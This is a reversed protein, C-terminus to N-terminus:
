SKKKLTTLYEVVDVLDQSTLNKQLDSPMLSTKQKKLADIEERPITHSIAKADKLIIQEDTESIMIGNIQQGDETLVSWTEYNHSVGASPDLIAVYFADRSLKSGIESLDPGVEKGEGGIKHCKACEGKKAFIAKGNQANGRSAVLQALPPLPDASATKPLEFYDGAKTRISEVSSHLLADGVILKLNEPLKGATAWDLLQQQGNTNGGMARAAIAQIANPYDNDIVSPALLILSKAGGANSIATALGLARQDDDGKLIETLKNSLDFELLLKAAQAGTNNQSNKVALDILRDSSERYQFQGVLEIFEAPDKITALHRAVAEKLEPRDSLDFKKLRKLTEVVIADRAEDATSARSLLCLAVFLMAAVVSRSM